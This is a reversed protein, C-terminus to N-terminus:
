KSVKMECVLKKWTSKQASGNQRSKDILTHVECYAPQRVAALGELSCPTGDLGALSRLVAEWLKVAQNAM